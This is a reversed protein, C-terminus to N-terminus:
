SGSFICNMVRHEPLNMYWGTQWGRGGLLLPSMPLHDSGSLWAATILNQEKVRGSFGKLFEPRPNFPASPFASKHGLIIKNEDM